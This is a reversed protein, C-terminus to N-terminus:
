SPPDSVEAHTLQRKRVGYIYLFCAFGLIFLWGSILIIKRSKPIVDWGGEKVVLVYRYWQSLDPIKLRYKGDVKGIYSVDNNESQTAKKNPYEVWIHVFSAKINYPVGKASLISALIMARSECDGKKKAIANKPTPVYWPVGYNTWDYEYVIMKKVFKEIQAPDDPINEDILEVISADVPYHIYRVFNRALIFPNPYCVIFTWFVFAVDVFVAIIWKEKIM